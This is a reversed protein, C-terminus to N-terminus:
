DVSFPASAAESIENKYGAVFGFLMYVHLTAKIPYISM